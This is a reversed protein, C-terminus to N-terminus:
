NTMWCPLFFIFMSLCAQVQQTCATYLTALNLAKWAIWCRKLYMKDPMWYLRAVRNVAVHGLSKKYTISTFFIISWYFCVFMIKVTVHTFTILEKVGRCMACTNWCLVPFWDQKSTCNNPWSSWRHPWRCAPRWWWWTGPAPVTARDNPANLRDRGKCTRFPWTRDMNWLHRFYLSWFLFLPHVPDSTTVFYKLSYNM